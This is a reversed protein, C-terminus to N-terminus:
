LMPYPCPADGVEPHQINFITFVDEMTAAPVEGTYVCEYREAPVRGVCKSLVFLLERYLLHVTDADPVMQYIKLKM